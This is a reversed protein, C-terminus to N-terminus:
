KRVVLTNFKRIACDGGIRAHFRDRRACIQGDDSPTLYFGSYFFDRAPCGKEIQARIRQGGRMALDVSDPESIAAGGVMDLRICKPGKHEKWSAVRPTEAVDYTRIRVISRREIMPPTAASAVDVSASVALSAYIFCRILWRM